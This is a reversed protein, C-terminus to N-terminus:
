PGHAAGSLPDGPGTTPHAPPAGPLLFPAPRLGAPEYRLMSLHYGREAELPVEIGTGQLLTKSWAGACIVAQDVNLLKGALQVRVQQADASLSEVTQQMFRGSRAEFAAFLLRCLQYPGRVQCADPFYLAHSLTGALTEWHRFTNSRKPNFSDTSAVPQQPM